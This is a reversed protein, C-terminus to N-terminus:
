KLEVDWGAGFQLLLLADRIDAAGDANVDANSTNIADATGADYRLIALADSLDVKGNDDADGPIRIVAGPTYSRIDALSTCGKFGAAGIRTVTNPLAVSTIATNGQFAGQGIATVPKGMYSSPVTVASQSGTYGTLIYGDGQDNLVFTFGTEAAIGSVLGAALLLACLMVACIMRKIFRM